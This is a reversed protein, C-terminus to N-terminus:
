FKKIRDPRATREMLTAVGSSQKPLIKGKVRRPTTFSPFSEANQINQKFRIEPEGSEFNKQKADIFITEPNMIKLLNAMMKTVSLNETRQLWEPINSVYITDFRYGCSEAWIKLKAFFYSDEVLHLNLHHIKEKMYLSRIKLFKEESFLWSFTSHLYYDITKEAFRGEESNFYYEGKEQLEKRFVEVFAERNPTMVITTAVFQYLTHLRGNIDCIWAYEVEREALLHYNFEFAFGLHLGKELPKISRLAELAAQQGIETTLVYPPEDLPFPKSEVTPFSPFICSRKAESPSDPPPLSVAKKPPFEPQEEEDNPLRKTMKIHKKALSDARSRLQARVLNFNPPREM